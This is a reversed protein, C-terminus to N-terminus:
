NTKLRTVKNSKRKRRSKTTKQHDFRMYILGGCTSICLIREEIKSPRLNQIWCKCCDTRSLNQPSSFKARTLMDHLYHFYLQHWPKTAQLAKDLQFVLIWMKKNEAAHEPPIISNSLCLSGSWLRAGVRL